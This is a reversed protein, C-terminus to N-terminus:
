GVAKGREPAVEESRRAAALEGQESGGTREQRAGGGYIRCGFISPNDAAVREIWGTLFSREGRRMWYWGYVTVILAGLADLILDWMTDTLPPIDGPKQNTTGLTEDLAFELIEWVGGLAFAFCFAFLAMFGPHMTVHVRANANLIYILMFGFIGLLLGSGFHLFSDWWPFRAYFSQATGLYMSAFVFLIVLIQFVYPVRVPLRDRLVLPSATMAMIGAVLAASMFSGRWLLAVLEVLMVLQIWILVLRHLREASYAAAYDEPNSAMAGKGARQM